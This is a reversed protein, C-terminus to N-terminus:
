RRCSSRSASARTLDDEGPNRLNKRTRALALAQKGNLETEGKKLHLTTGGNRPRRQDEVARRAGKYTVGGLADILQPFNEFSM